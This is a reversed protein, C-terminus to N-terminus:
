AVEKGATSIGAFFGKVSLDEDLDIWHIGEGDGMIEYNNLQQKTANKIVPYWVIPVLLTRGDKLKVVIEDDTFNINDALPENNILITM